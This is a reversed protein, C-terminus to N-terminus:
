MYEASSPREVVTPVASLQLLIVLENSNQIFTPNLTTRRRLVGLFNWSTMHPNM